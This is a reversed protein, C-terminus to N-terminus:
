QLLNSDIFQHLDKKLPAATSLDIKYSAEVVGASLDSETIRPFDATVEYLQQTRVTYGPLDYLHSQSHHYGQTMLLSEFLDECESGMTQFRSLLSGVLCPLTEGSGDRRDFSAHFLLLDDLGTSDLQRINAISIIDANNSTSAKVEIALPGFCFDQNERHPGHWAKLGLSSDVGRETLIRLLSLEGFLGIQLPISLGETGAKESFRRWHDLRRDLILMADKETKAHICHGVVDAALARFLDGFSKRNLAIDIRSCNGKTTNATKRTTVEFGKAEHTLSIRKISEPAVEFSFNMLGSPEHRGVFVSCISEAFVRVSYHGEGNTAEEAVSAWAKELIESTTSTAPM